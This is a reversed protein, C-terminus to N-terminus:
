ADSGDGDGIDADMDVMLDPVEAEAGAEPVDEVNPTDLRNCFSLIASTMDMTSRSPATM